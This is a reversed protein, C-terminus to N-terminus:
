ISAQGDGLHQEVPVSAAELARASRANPPRGFLRFPGSRSRYRTITRTRVWLPAGVMIREAGDLWGTRDWREPDLEVDSYIEALWECGTGQGLAYGRKSPPQPAKGGRSTRGQSLAIKLAEVARSQDDWQSTNRRGRSDLLEMIANMASSTWGEQVADRRQFGTMNDMSGFLCLDVRRGAPTEVRAHMLIPPTKAYPAIFEAFEVTGTGCALGVPPRVRDFDDVVQRGVGKEVKRAVELRSRSRQEVGGVEVQPLGPIAPTKVVLHLRPGLSIGNDSAVSEIRRGSWYVYRGVGRKM